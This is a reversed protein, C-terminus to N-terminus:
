TKVLVRNTKEDMLIDRVEEENIQHVNIGKETLEQILITYQEHFYAGLSIRSYVKTDDIPLDKINWSELIEPKQERLWNGFTEPLDPIEESSINALNYIDTTEPNYPMGMGMHIGKEFISIKQIFSKLKELHDNIHKLLYIATAGSGIIAINKKDM